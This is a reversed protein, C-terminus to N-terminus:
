RMSTASKSAAISAAARTGPAASPLTSIRGIRSIPQRIVRRVGRCGGRGCDSRQDLSGVADGRLGGRRGVRRCADESLLM